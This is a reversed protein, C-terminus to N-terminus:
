SACNFSYMLSDAVREFNRNPAPYRAPSKPNPIRTKKWESLDHIGKREKMEIAFHPPIDLSEKKSNKM